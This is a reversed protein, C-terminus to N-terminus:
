MRAMEFGQPAFAAEFQAAAALVLADEFRRGVIQLGVPLGDHLGIPLTIAPQGTLNFAYTLPTYGFGSVPLGAIHSPPDPQAAFATTPMTPTVLLDFEEFVQAFREVLAGRQAIATAHQVATMGQARDLWWLLGDDMQSRWEALYPALTAALGNIWMTEITELPDSISLRAEDLAHGLQTFQAAARRCMESIEPEVPAFGLDASWGIRLPRLSDRADVAQTFRAGDHPLSFVDRPDAGVIVDLLLAADRVCMTMPGAHAVIPIASPPYYPVRGHTPKFGVVGCFSAPIRISGAGDTGIALPGLGSSVAAAAGGSSGGPTRALNWPNRSMGTVRSDTLGKYGFEPTTTKGLMICGAQKVRTVAPSDFEPVFHEYIKSGRMTRVGRTFLLDKISIPVGHLEGRSQGHMREADLTAADQRAQAETLTCYANIHPNIKHIRAYLASVIEVSSTQKARLAASMESATLEHLQTKNM